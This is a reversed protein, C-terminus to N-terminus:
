LHKTVEPTQGWKDNRGDVYRIGLGALESADVDDLCAVNVTIFEGTQPFNIKHFAHVGCKKCFYNHVAPSFRVYDTLLDNDGASEPLLRFEDPKVRAGWYRLKACVTCNCKFTDQSPDFDAEFKVAGCVCSGHYTKSM